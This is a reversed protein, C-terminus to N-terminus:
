RKDVEGTAFPHRPRTEDDHHQRFTRNCGPAACVRDLQEFTFVGNSGPVHFQWDVAPCGGIHGGREGCGECVPGTPEPKVADILDCPMIRDRNHRYYDIVAERCAEYPLPGIIAEWAMSDAEGITRQDYAAAMSLILDVEARNM